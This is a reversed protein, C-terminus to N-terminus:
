KFKQNIISSIKEIFTQLCHNNGSISMYYITDYETRNYFKNHLKLYISHENITEEHSNLIKMNNLILIPINIPIKSIYEKIRDFSIINGADFMVVVININSLEKKFMEDNYLFEHFCQGGIEKINLNLNVGYQIGKINVVNDNSLTPIYKKSKYSQQSKDSQDNNALLNNIFTTKGVGASGIILINYSNLM